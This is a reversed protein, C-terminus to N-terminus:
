PYAKQRVKAPTVSIPRWAPGALRERWRRSTATRGRPAISSPIDLVGILSGRANRRAATTYRVRHTSSHTRPVRHMGESPASRSDTGRGVRQHEPATRSRWRCCRAGRRAHRTPPQFESRSTSISTAAREPCGCGGSRHRVGEVSAGVASLSSGSCRDSRSPPSSRRPTPRVHTWTGGSQPWSCM